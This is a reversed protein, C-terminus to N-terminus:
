MQGTLEKIKAPIDTAKMLAEGILVANVRRFQKIYDIDDRSHLGSESILIKDKPIHLALRGTTKIDVKLTHLNRNNIGIIEADTQLVKKLDQYTHVECVATMSLDNILNIFYGLTPKKLICVILLVADAGALRAQYIQYEDIIFDKQLLPLKVSKKLKQIISIDGGFFRGETLVSIASVGCSEYIKAIKLPEFKKCLLGASPSSSKIEGILNLRNNKSIAKKFNRTPLIGRNLRKVLRNIPEKEKQLTLEKKKFSLIEELHNSEKNPM